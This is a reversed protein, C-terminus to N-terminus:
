SRTRSLWNMILLTSTMGILSLALMYDRYTHIPGVSYMFPENFSRLSAVASPMARVNMSDTGGGAVVVPEGVRGIVTTSSSVVQKEPQQEHVISYLFSFIFLALCFSIVATFNRRMKYTISYLRDMVPIRWSEDDYIRQMVSSSIPTQSETMTEEASFKILEASEEWIRFEEACSPCGKIHEDVCQKRLDDDSIDWYVGFLQQIDECKM